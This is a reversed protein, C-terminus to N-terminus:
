WERLVEDKDGTECIIFLPSCSPLCVGDSVPENHISGPEDNKCNFLMVWNIPNGRLKCPGNTWLMTLKVLKNIVFENVTSALSNEFVNINKLLFILTNAMNWSLCKLTVNALLKALNQVAPGLKDCMYYM